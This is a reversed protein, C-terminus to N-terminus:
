YALKVVNQDDVCFNNYVFDENWTHCSVFINLKIVCRIFIPCLSCRAGSQRSMDALLVKVKKYCFLSLCFLTKCLM